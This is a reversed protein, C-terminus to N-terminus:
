ADNLNRQRDLWWGIRDDLILHEQEDGYDIAYVARKGDEVNGNLVEYDAGDAPGVHVRMSGEASLILSACGHPTELIVEVQPNGSDRCQEEHVTVKPLSLSENSDGKSSGSTALRADCLYCAEGDDSDNPSNEFGEGTSDSEM